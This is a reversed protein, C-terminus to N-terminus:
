WRVTICEADVVVYFGHNKMYLIASLPVAQKPYCLYCKDLGSQKDVDKKFQQIFENYNDM